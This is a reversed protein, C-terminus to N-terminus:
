DLFEKKNIGPEIIYPEDGGVVLVYCATKDSTDCGDGEPVDIAFVNYAYMIGVFTLLTFFLKNM